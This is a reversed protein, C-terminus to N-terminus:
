YPADEDLYHFEFDEDQFDPLHKVKEPAIKQPKKKIQNPYNVGVGQNEDLLIDDVYSMFM